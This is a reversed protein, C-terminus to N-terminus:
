KMCLEVYGDPAITLVAYRDLSAAGPNIVRLGDIIEYKQRHTHGLLLLDAHQKKAFAVIKSYNNLTRVEPFLHGHLMYIRKGGLEILKNTPTIHDDLDCNGRVGHTECNPLEEKLRVCLSEFAGQSDGM